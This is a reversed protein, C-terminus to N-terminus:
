EPRGAWFLGGRRRPQGSGGVVEQDSPGLEERTGRTTGSTPWIVIKVIIPCKEGMKLGEEKREARGPAVIGKEGRLTLLFIRSAQM